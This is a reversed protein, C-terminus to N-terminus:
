FTNVVGTVGTVGLVVREVVNRLDLVSNPCGACAGKMRVRVIREQIDILEIDGGDRQLIHRVDEVAQRVAAENPLPTDATIIRAPKARLALSQARAISYAREPDRQELTDLEEETYFKIPQIKPERTMDDWYPYTEGLQLGIM